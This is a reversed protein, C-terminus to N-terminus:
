PRRRALWARVAPDPALAIARDYAAGAEPRGLRRLAEARVAWWPQFGAAAEAETDLLALAEAERGLRAM